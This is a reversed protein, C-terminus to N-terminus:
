GRSKEKMEMEVTLKTFFAKLSNKHYVIFCNGGVDGRRLRCFRGLREATYIEM